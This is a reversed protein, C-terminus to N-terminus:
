VRVPGFVKVWVKLPSPPLWVQVICDPGAQCRGNREPPVSSSCPPGPVRGPRRRTRAGTPTQAMIPRHGGRPDHAQHGGRGLRERVPAAGRDGACPEAFPGVQGVDAPRLVRVQRGDDLQRRVQDHDVGLLVATLVVVREDLEAHVDVHQPDAAHVVQVRLETRQGLTHASVPFRESGDLVRLQTQPDGDRDPLPAGM